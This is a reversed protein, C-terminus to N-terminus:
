VSTSRISASQGIRLHEPLSLEFATALPRQRLVWEQFSPHSSLGWRSHSAILRIRQKMIEDAKMWAFMKELQAEALRERLIYFTHVCETATMGKMLSRFLEAEAESKAKEPPITKLVQSTAIPASSLTLFSCM